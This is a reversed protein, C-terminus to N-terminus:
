LSASNVEEYFDKLSIEKVQGTIKNRVTILSNGGLCEQSAQRTGVLATQQDRWAQDREPHLYWPLKIPNFKELGKTEESNIDLEATEYLKHFLNGVGNPTSLVIADGGTALTMQAATWIDSFRDIFAAEDIVLLSLAESRGSNSSSSVAKVFSGNTLELQLKNDSVSKGRLWVPLNENMVQVKRVLNAAVNQTTAIILVKFNENFLMKFLIYAAVLTSIGMQRSKLIINYRHTFFQKLCEAQFDFLDFIIKGKKPHEVKCYKKIGYIFDSAVKQYELKIAEKLNSM